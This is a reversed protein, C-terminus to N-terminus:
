SKDAHIDFVLRKVARDKLDNASHSRKISIDSKTNSFYRVRDHRPPTVYSPISIRDDGTWVTDLLYTGTRPKGLSTSKGHYHIYGAHATIDLDGLAHRKVRKVDPSTIM